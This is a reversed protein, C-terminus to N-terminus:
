PADVINTTQEIREITRSETTQPLQYRQVLPSPAANLGPTSPAATTLTPPPPPPAPRRAVPPRPRQVQKPAARPRAPRPATIEVPRLTTTGPAEQAAIECPWALAAAFAAFAPGYLRSM